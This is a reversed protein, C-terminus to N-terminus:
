DKDSKDIGKGGSLADLIKDGVSDIGTECVQMVSQLWSPLIAGMGHANEIISGLEKVCYWAVVVPFIVTKYEFPLAIIHPIIQGVTFDLSLSVVAVFFNGFKGIIGVGMRQSKWNTNRGAAISGTIVDIISLFIFMIFLWGVWGWVATLGALVAVIAVKIETAKEVM